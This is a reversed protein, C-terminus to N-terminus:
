YKRVKIDLRKIAKLIKEKNRRDSAIILDEREKELNKIIPSLDEVNGLRKKNRNLVPIKETLFKQKDKVM